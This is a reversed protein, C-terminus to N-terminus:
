LLGLWRLDELVSRMAEETARSADTDAIRLVFSGNHKRAYLWNFTATMANGVHLSGSPAPEFRVRVPQETTV